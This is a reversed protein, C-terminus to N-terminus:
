CSVSCSGVSQCFSACVPHCDDGFPSATCGRSAPTSTSDNCSGTSGCVPTTTTGNQTGSDTCAFNPNPLQCAGWSTSASGCVIGARSGRSCGESQSSTNSGCTGSGCTRTTVSRSRTGTADCTGSFGGCSSWPGTTTSGCSVGDTNRSCGESQTSTNSGCTGSGCTRTTVSRSRSGTEDCTGSFGGCSSWAGTTTSGCSVGDTNRSCAGTQSSTNSGCSGSSCTRTTVSRTRTGTEDCSGSFGGCSSWAGTTTSGCSLGDTNRSCGESQSSTNSACTGASCSRTTVSRTRTGSEGCTGAFGGCSSWAGTTTSGCSTGDTDRACGETQTSTNSNCAGSGCTLTTVSRSRTGAEGCTGSFGGCTSWAGTMTSGCSNGDTDRMCAETQTSTNSGCTGSSCTRTTLTRSRTGSEGCTGSFGTCSSWAGTTPSDCTSGDTDRACSRSESDPEQVCSGARCVSRTVGRTETGVEGCAGAFGGCSSWVEFEPAGCETGDPRAGAPVCEPTPGGCDVRGTRCPDGVLTCPEDPVCTDSCEGSANCSAAGGMCPSGVPATADLPCANATGSCVEPVDCEGAAENCVFGMPQKEDLPCEASAGDCLEPLDCPGAAERCVSGANGAGAVTCVPTGTSCDFTGVECPNEPQCPEGCEPPALDTPAMDIAVDVRMDMSGDITPPDRDPRLECGRDSCFEDDSCAGDVPASLCAGEATCLGEACDASATCDDATICGEGCSGPTEPSCEPRVCRGDSCTTAEPDGGDPCAVDLCSRTITLTPASAGSIRIRLTRDVLVSGNLFLEGFLTYDGAKLDSFSAVREGAIFNGGDIETRQVLENGSAAAISVRVEDFEAGPVFDTRLTVDVDSAGAGSCAGLMLLALIIPRNM